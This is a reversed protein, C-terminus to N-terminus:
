IVLTSRVFVTCLVQEWPKPGRQISQRIFIRLLDLDDHATQPNHTRTSHVLTLTYFVVLISGGNCPHQQRKGDICLCFVVIFFLIELCEGLTYIVIRDNCELHCRIM